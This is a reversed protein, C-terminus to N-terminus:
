EPPTPRARLRYRIQEVQWAIERDFGSRDHWSRQQRAVLVSVRQPIHHSPSMSCIEAVANGIGGAHGVASRAAKMEADTHEGQMWRRKTAVARRLDSAATVHDLDLGHDVFDCGLSHSLIPPLLGMVYRVRQELGSPKIKPLDAYQTFDDLVKVAHAKGALYALVLGNRAIPEVRAFRREARLFRTLKRYARDDPAPFGAM